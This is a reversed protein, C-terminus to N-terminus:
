GTEDFKRSHKKSPTNSTVHSHKKSGLKNKKVKIDSPRRHGQPASTILINAPAQDVDQPYNDEDTTDGLPKHDASAWQSKILNRPNKLVLKDNRFALCMAMLNFDSAFRKITKHADRDKLHILFSEPGIASYAAIYLKGMETSMEVIFYGKPQITHGRKYLVQRSIPLIRAQNQGQSNYGIIGCTEKLM